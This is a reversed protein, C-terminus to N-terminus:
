RAGGRLRALLDPSLTGRCVEEVPGTLYLVDDPGAEVTLTGGPSAVTVRRGTFGHRICAAAVASSSSGSAMTEGAGREWIRITVRRPSDVRVFQVNTRNPFMPHHELAPGLRALDVAAPDPVFVICHPNGVSVATVHLTQGAAEIREGVIERDRGTAPIERSRFTARGIGATITRVTRGRVNLTVPVVGGKTDVRFTRRRTYGHDWLFKAFIRIGNGSKEAESGDPNLIRLGFEARRSRELTLIGDSGVGLNRHCILRIARPTLRVALTRPDMVLYDNGLGHSKVYANRGLRAM